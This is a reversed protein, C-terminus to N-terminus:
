IQKHLIGFHFLQNNLLETSMSLRLHDNNDNNKDVNVAQAQFYIPSGSM